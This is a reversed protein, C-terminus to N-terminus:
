RKKNKKEKATSLSSSLAKCKNPLHEVVQTVGGAQDNELIHRDCENGGTRTRQSLYGSKPPCRKDEGNVNRNSAEEAGIQCIPPL